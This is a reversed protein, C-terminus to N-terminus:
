PKCMTIQDKDHSRCKPAILTFNECFQMVAFFIVLKCFVILRRFIIRRLKKKKSIMLVDIQPRVTFIESIGTEGLFIELNCPVIM